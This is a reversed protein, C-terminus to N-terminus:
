YHLEIKHNSYFLNKNVRLHLDYKSCYELSLSATKSVQKKTSICLFNNIYINVM